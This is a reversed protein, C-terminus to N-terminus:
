VNSQNSTLTLPSGYCAILAYSLYYLIANVVSKEAVKEMRICPSQRLDRSNLAPGSIVILRSLPWCDLTNLLLSRPCLGM